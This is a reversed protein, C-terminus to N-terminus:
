TMLENRQRKWGATGEKLCTRMENIPGKIEAINNRVEPNFTKSMDEGRKELGRLIKIIVAKLEVDLVNNKHKM